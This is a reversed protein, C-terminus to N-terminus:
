LALGSGTDEGGHPGAFRPRGGNCDTIFSISYLWRVVDRNGCSRRPGCYRRSAFVTQVFISACTALQFDEVAYARVPDAINKVRQPGLPRYTFDLKNKVQEYVTQSLCITGPAALTQLRAAINVGEGYLDGDDGVIVDGLNVGIRLELRRAPPLPDNLRRAHQQIEAACALADVVSSFDALLGDGATSVIRGVM